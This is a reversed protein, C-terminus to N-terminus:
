HPGSAQYNICNEDALRVFFGPGLIPTLSRKRRVESGPESERVGVIEAPEYGVAPTLHLHKQEVVM